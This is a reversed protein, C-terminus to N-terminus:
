RSRGTVLRQSSRLRAQMLSRPTSIDGYFNSLKETEQPAAVKTVECHGSSSHVTVWFCNSNAFNPLDSENDTANALSGESLIDGSVGDSPGVLFSMSPQPPYRVWDFSNGNWQDKYIGEVTGDSNFIVMIGHVKQGNANVGSAIENIGFALPNLSSGSASLDIVTRGPLNLPAMATKIPDLQIEADHALYPQFSEVTTPTFNTSGGVQYSSGLLDNTEIIVGPEDIRQGNTPDRVVGTIQCTAAEYQPPNTNPRVRPTFEVVTEATLGLSPTLNQIRSYRYARGSGPEKVKIVTGRRILQSAYRTGATNVAAHRAAAYLLECDKRKVFYRYRKTCNNEPDVLSRFPYIGGTLTIKSPVQVYSLRSSVNLNTNVPKDPTPPEYMTGRRSILVGCPLGKAVAMARATMFSGQVITASRATTYSKLSDKVTPLALATVTVIVGLTVMIEVLTYATKPKRRM